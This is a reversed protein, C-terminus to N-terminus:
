CKKGDNGTGGAIKTKFKFLASNNNDPPFDPIAGNNDLYPEDRYYQQLIGSKKSYNDSYEILKYMPMVIDIDKANDIQTNNIKSICNTFPASNKIMINKRNNPNAATRTNPVTINASILPIHGM